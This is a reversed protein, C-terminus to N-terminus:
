IKYEVSELVQFEWPSYDYVMGVSFCSAKEGVAIGASCYDCLCSAGSRIVGSAKFIYEGAYPYSFGEPANNYGKPSCKACYIERKM